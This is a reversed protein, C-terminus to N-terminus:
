DKHLPLDADTLRSFYICDVVGAGFPRKTLSDRECKGSYINTVRNFWTCPYFQQEKQLLKSFYVKVLM